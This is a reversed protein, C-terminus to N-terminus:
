WNKQSDELEIIGLKLMQNIFLVADQIATEKDVDYQNLIMEVLEEFSAASEIHEYIFAGTDTLTMIGNFKETTKGVPILVFEDIMNRLIFENKKKM